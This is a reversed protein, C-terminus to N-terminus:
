EGTGGGEGGRRRGGRGEREGRGERGREGLAIASVVTAVHPPDLTALMSEVAASSSVLSGGSIVSGLRGLYWTSLCM